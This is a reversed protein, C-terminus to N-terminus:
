VAFANTLYRRTYMYLATPPLGIIMSMAMMPGWNVREGGGANLAFYLSVIAPRPGNGTTLMNSFLFDSWGHLFALFGIAGIAPMSLPLVVRVFAGFQTCGYIQAAEEINDPLKRFFDRLIWLAFPAVFIQFSLWVGLFTNFLGLSLWLETIPIILVVHPFLLALVIGYFLPRKGPFEKRGFVYAGPITILLSLIATGVAIILSNYLQTGFADIARNYNALTPEYPIVHPKAVFLENGPKFSTGIVYLLPLVISLLMLIMFSYSGATIMWEDLSRDFLDRDSYRSSM